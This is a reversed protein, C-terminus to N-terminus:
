SGASASPLPGCPGGALEALWFTVLLVSM